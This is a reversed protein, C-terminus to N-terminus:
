DPRTGIGIAGPKSSVPATSVPVNSAPATVRSFVKEAIEVIKEPTLDVNQTLLEFLYKGRAIRVVQENIKREGPAQIVFTVKYAVDAKIGNFDEFKADTIKVASGAQIKKIMSRTYEELYGAGTRTFSSDRMVILSVNGMMGAPQDVAIIAQSAEIQDLLEDRKQPDLSAYAARLNAQGLTINQVKWDRNGFDRDIGLLVQTYDRMVRPAESYLAPKAIMASETPPREFITWVKAMGGHEVYYAVFRQGGLYVEEYLAARAHSLLEVAPDDRKIAGASLMRSFDVVADNLGLMEGVRDQVFVAQGEMLSSYAQSEDGNRIRSMAKVLDVEQDQLAHTLEHAVVLKVIAKLQMPDVKAAALLGAVNRPLLYLIKDRMGYKGLLAPALKRAENRASAEVEMDSLHPALNKFQPVFDRALSEAAGARDTLKFQPKAKFQRGLVREVLPEVEAIYAGAEEESFAPAGEKLDENAAPAPAALYEASRGQSTLNALSLVLLWTVVMSNRHRKM